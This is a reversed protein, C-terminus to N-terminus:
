LEESKPRDPWRVGVRGLAPTVTEAFVERYATQRTKNFAKATLQLVMRVEQAALEAERRETQAQDYQSWGVWGIAAIAAAAAFARLGRWQAPRVVNAQPQRVTREWVQELAADPLPEEALGRLMQHVQKLEDAEDRCSSCVTLHQEMEQADSAEMLDGDLRRHFRQM